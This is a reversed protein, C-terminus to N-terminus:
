VANILVILDRRTEHMQALNSVSPHEEVLRKTNSMCILTGKLELM